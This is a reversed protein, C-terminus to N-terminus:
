RKCSRNRRKTKSLIASRVVVELISSATWCVVTSAVLLVLCAVFSGGPM